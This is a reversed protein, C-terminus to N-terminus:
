KSILGALFLISFVAGVIWHGTSFAGVAIALLILTGLLSSKRKSRKKKVSWRKRYSVGTGPINLSFGSTGVSGGKRRHSASIKRKGINLGLGKGLSVRKHVRFGM